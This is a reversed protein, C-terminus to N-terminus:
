KKVEKNPNETKDTEKKESPNSNFLCIFFLLIFLTVVKEIIGKM